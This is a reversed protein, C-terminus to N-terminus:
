DVLRRNAVVSVSAQPAFSLWVSTSGPPHLSVMDSWGASTASTSSSVALFCQTVTCDVPTGHDDLGRRVHVITALGGSENTVASAGISVCGSFTRCEYFHLTTHPAFGTGTVLVAQGDVLGTTPGALLQGAPAAGASSPAVGAGILLSAAITTVLVAAMVGRRRAAIGRVGRDVARSRVGFGQKRRRRRVTVVPRSRPYPCRRPLLAGERARRRTVGIYDDCGSEM